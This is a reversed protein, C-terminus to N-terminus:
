RCQRREERKARQRELMQRDIDTQPHIKGHSLPKMPDSNTKIRFM